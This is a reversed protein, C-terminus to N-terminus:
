AAESGLAVLLERRDLDICEGGDFELCVTDADTQVVVFTLWTSVV